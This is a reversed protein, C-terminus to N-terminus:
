SGKKEFFRNVAHDRCIHDAYETGYKKAIYQYCKQFQPPRNKLNHADTSVFDVLKQSLLKKSMGRAHFGFDGFCSGSNVQILIGDQKLVTLVSLDLKLYREAHALIPVYGANILRSLGKVIENAEENERFDVLVCRKKGLRRCTKNKVWTLCEPSYHLENALMLQMDPYKECYAVARAFAEEARIENYGYYGPHYHPTFCLYRVGEAYEADLMQEMMEPTSAGDDVNYLAHCHIDAFTM